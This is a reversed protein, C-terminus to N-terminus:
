EKGDMISECFLQCRVCVDAESVNAHDHSLDGWPGNGTAENNVTKRFRGTGTGDPNLIERVAVTWSM